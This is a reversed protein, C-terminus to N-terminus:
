WRLIFVPNMRWSNRHSGEANNMDWRTGRWHSIGVIEVFRACGCSIMLKQGAETEFNKVSETVGFFLDKNM